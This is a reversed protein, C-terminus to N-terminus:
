NGYKKKRNTKVANEGDRWNREVDSVLDAEKDNEELYDILAAKSKYTEDDYEVAKENPGYIFDVMSQLDDLGYDFRIVFEAERYPLAVKNREFKALVRVGYIIKRGKVTRDLKKKTYLWPVQHTYFDLAKGGNRRFKKGFMGANLNERVQSVIIITADKGKGIKALQKFFVQSMYKQSEGNFSEAEKKDKKLAEETRKEAEESMCADLSDWIYLLATGDKMAKIRKLLNRGVDQIVSEQVWEVGEVFEDGYMKEIPFDMVGEANNYVVVVKKVPPFLKTKVNKVNYFFQAAAELALLTKGSSGDGVLNVVHGRAWGGRKGKQSAALNLNTCGTSLFEVRTKREKRKRASRKVQEHLPKNAV